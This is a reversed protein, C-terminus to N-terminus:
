LPRLNLEVRTLAAAFGEPARANRRASTVVPVSTDYHILAGHAVLADHLVRDESSRLPPFGGVELYTQGNVGLSAGHIPRDEADYERQWKVSIARRHRPWETVAVRGAWADVGREHQLVQAILWDRPVRTDADSSALWVHALDIGQFEDLLLGCGLARARGVNEADTAVVSVGFTSRREANQQWRRAISESQDRCSDLVVVVHARLEFVELSELADELCNLSAHLLREENNAPIVVGVASTRRTANRKPTVEITGL